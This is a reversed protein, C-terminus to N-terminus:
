GAVTTTTTTVATAPTSTSTQAPNVVTTSLVNGVTNFLINVLTNVTQSSGVPPPYSYQKIINGNDLTQSIGTFTM